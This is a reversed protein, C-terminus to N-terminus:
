QGGDAGEADRKSGAAATRRSVDHRCLPCVRHVETLWQDVCNAHFKHRCPLVRILDNDVYKELCIYCMDDEKDAGTDMVGGAREGDQASTSSCGGDADCSRCYKYTPLEKVTPEDIPRMKNRRTHGLQGAGAADDEGAGPSAIDDLIQFLSEALMIIRNTSDRQQM